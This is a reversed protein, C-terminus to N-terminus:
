PLPYDQVWKITRNWRIRAFLDILHDSKKDALEETPADYSWLVLSPKGVMNGVPVFGWYRSDLSNDRNDGM